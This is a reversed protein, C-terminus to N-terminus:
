YVLKQKVSCLKIKAFTFTELIKQWLHDLFVKKYYKTIYHISLLYLIAGTIM